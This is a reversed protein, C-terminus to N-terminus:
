AFGDTDGITSFMLIPRGSKQAAAIADEPKAYWNLKTIGALVKELREATEPVTTTELAKEIAPVAAWGKAKLEKTARERTAYDRDGLKAVLPTIDDAETPRPEEPVCGAAFLALPLLWLRRM